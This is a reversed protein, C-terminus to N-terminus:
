GGFIRMAIQAFEPSVAEAQRTQPAVCSDILLDAELSGLGRYRLTQVQRIKRTQLQVILAKYHRESNAYLPQELAPATIRFLPARVMWVRKDELLAPMYCHLFILMLAGCHIGDADPDFLLMVRQYRMADPQCGTKIGCGLANIFAKFWLNKLVRAQSAKRANLPKGQM